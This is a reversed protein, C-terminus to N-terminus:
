IYRSGAPHFEPRLRLLHGAPSCCSNCTPIGTLFTNYRGPWWEKHIDFSGSPLVDGFIEPLIERLRHIRHRHLIHFFPGPSGPCRKQTRGHGHGCINRQLMLPVASLDVPYLSLFWQGHLVPVSRLCRDYPYGAKLVWHLLFIGFFVAEPLVTLLPKTQTASFLGPHFFPGLLLFFSSPLLSSGSDHFAIGRIGSDRFRGVPCYRLLIRM